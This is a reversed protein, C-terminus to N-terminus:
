RMFPYPPSATTLLETPSHIMPGHRQCKECRAAFKNCDEVMTPWYHGQNRIWLALTRGTCHSGGAGEHMEKMVDITKDGHLCSLLAGTESWRFLNGDFQFYKAAKKKSRRAAWRDDPVTGSIIYSLIDPRWDPKVPKPPPPPLNEGDQVDQEEIPDGALFDNILCIGKPLEISPSDISEVPIVRRQTPDSTSALAALADASTNDGRPIKTLHFESFESALDQVVKLYAEMRDNKTEYEGSFQNAVLQSDCYAQIKKVGIEKALRLGAILAEYEAENNSAQFALRFSQEIVEHTPSELCIGVGSGHKSASGDVHLSWKEDPAEGTLEPALEVLFDALVQSKAATRGRYDIDYESLEVAWKAMRGSQSPSHLITRLPHTTLVAVTHSQFYLRLKQAATVVALALKEMTPYRSEAGDLSKSVYFVPKQEGRDERVLVGSVASTSVAIYLYLTEGDEPKALVPPTSLYEKLQQFALECKDDWEFKKNGRLLQYFPLCKDTSRSIFRNLAAIRGTLRQVKRTSKPSQLELVAQIQKPNAEIGRQTVVYGLFEGSTVGFTCKVPNLKMGYENLTKFCTKLHDVHDDAVMSKVLMDDIYVEMTRGLQDAFMKNVLRQYTAGAKKLGFPM